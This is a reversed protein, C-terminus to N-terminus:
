RGVKWILFGLRLRVKRIVRWLDPNLSFNLARVRTELSSGVSRRESCRTQSSGFPLRCLESCLREGFAKVATVTEERAAM